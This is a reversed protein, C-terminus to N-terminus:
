KVHKLHTILTKQIMECTGRCVIILLESSVSLLTSLLLNLLFTDEYVSYKLRNVNLSSEKKKKM